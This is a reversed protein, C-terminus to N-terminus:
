EIILYYNDQYSIELNSIKRNGNVIGRQNSDSRWVLGYVDYLILVNLEM